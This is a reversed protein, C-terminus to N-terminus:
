MSPSDSRWRSSRSLPQRQGFREPDGAFDRAREVEGMGALDDVPIELRLVDQQIAGMRQQGIEADRSRDARRLIRREGALAYHDARQGVHTGLLHDAPTRQVGPGVDIRQPADEM